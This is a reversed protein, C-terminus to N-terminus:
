YLNQKYVCVQCLDLGASNLSFRFRCHLLARCQVRLGLQVPSMSSSLCLAFHFSLLNNKITGLPVTICIFGAESQNQCAKSQMVSKDYQTCDIIQESIEGLSLCTM